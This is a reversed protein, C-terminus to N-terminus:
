EPSPPNDNRKRRTARGSAPKKRGKKEPRLVTDSRTLRDFVSSGQSSGTNEAQSSEAREVGPTGQQDASATARAETSGTQKSSGAYKPTASQSQNSQVAFRKNIEELVTKPQRYFPHSNYIQNKFAVLQALPIEIDPINQIQTMRPPLKNVKIIAQGKKLASAAHSAEQTTIAGGYLQRIMKDRDDRNLTNFLIKIKCNSNVSSEVHKDLHDFRTHALTLGLGSKRKKDLVYTLNANAYDGVEDVYIYHRGAWGNARLTSLAQFLNMLIISGLLKQQPTIGQGWVRETYLNVLLLYKGSIVDVFNIGPDSSGFMLGLVKDKFVNLRNITSELKEFATKTAFVDEVLSRDDDQNNLHSLIRRRQDIFKYALFYRVEAMTLDAAYLCHLLAPLFHGIRPTSAFDSQGWLVRITNMLDGIVRAAYLRNPKGEGDHIVGLASILPVVSEKGQLSDNPDIIIIKEPPYGKSIAYRLVKYMTDGNDSPDLLTAGYGSDIDQRLLLELLKSKGEGTAGLVHIHSERDEEAIFLTDDVTLGIDRLPSTSLFQQVLENYAQEETQVRTFDEFSEGM